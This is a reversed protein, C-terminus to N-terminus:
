ILQATAIGGLGTQPDPKVPKWAPVLKAGNAIAAMQEEFTMRKPAPATIPKKPEGLEIRRADDEARFRELMIRKAEAIDHDLLLARYEYIRDKPLWKANASLERALKSSGLRVPVPLTMGRAQYEAKLQDRIRYGACTGLGIEHAARSIPERALIRRRMEDILVPPIDKVSEKTVLRKGSLDCGPLYQGKRRLTKVLRARIRLAQSKSVGTRQEIKYVGFGEMLLKRVEAKQAPKLKRGSYALGAGAPPLPRKGLAKLEKNYKRRHNCIASASIAMQLQIDCGKMGARLMKRLRAVDKAILGGTGDRKAPVFGADICQAALLANAAASECCGFEEGIARYSKGAKRMELARALNDGDISKRLGAAVNNNVGLKVARQCVADFTRGKLQEACFRGGSRQFHDILIQDERRTWLRHNGKGRAKM